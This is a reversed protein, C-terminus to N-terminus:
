KKKLLKINNLTENKTVNYNLYKEKLIQNINNVQYDFKAYVKTQTLM